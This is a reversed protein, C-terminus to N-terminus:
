TALAEGQYGQPIHFDLEEGAEPGYRIIFFEAHPWAHPILLKGPNEPSFRSRRDVFDLIAALRTKRQPRV